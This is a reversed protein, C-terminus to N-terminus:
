QWYIVKFALFKAQNGKESAESMGTVQLSVQFFPHINNPTLRPNGFSTDPFV